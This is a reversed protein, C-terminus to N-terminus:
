IIESSSATIMFLVYSNKEIQDMIAETKEHINLEDNNYTKLLNEYMLSKVDKLNIVRDDKNFDM